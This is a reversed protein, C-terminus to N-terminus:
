FDTFEATFVIGAALGVQSGVYVKDGAGLRLPTTESYNGFQTSTIGAATGITQSAMTASDKLRFTVGNDRSIFVCLGTATLTGRPIASLRTMISGNTGATYLLSLGTPTDTGLGALASTIAVDATKPNQAFAAVNTMAM